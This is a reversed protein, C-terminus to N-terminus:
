SAKNLNFDWGTEIPSGQKRNTKDVSTYRWKINDYSLTIEELPNQGNGVGAGLVQVNSIVVNHLQYKMVMIGNQIIELMADDIIEGNSALLYIVPSSQDMPKVLLLDGQKSHQATAVTSRLGNISYNFALVEIWGEHNEVTVDGIVGQLFLFAGNITESGPGLSGGGGNPGNAPYVSGSQGMTQGHEAPNPQLGNTGQQTHIAGTIISSKLAGLVSVSGDDASVVAIMLVMSVILISAKM